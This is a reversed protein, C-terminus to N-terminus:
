MLVLTLCLGFHLFPVLPMTSKLTTKKMILLIISFLSCALTGYLITPIIRDITLFFGMVFALKVDGGGLQGKTILYCLLFVLGAIFAGGLSFMLLAIGEDRAVVIYGGVMIVWLMVSVALLRDPVVSSMKDIFAFVSLLVLIVMCMSEIVINNVYAKTVFYRLIIAVIDFGLVLYLYWNKFLDKNLYKLVIM